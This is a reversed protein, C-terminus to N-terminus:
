PQPSAPANVPHILATNLAQRNAETAALVGALRTREAALSTQDAQLRALDAERATVEQRLRAAQGTLRNQETQALALAALVTERASQEAHRRADLTARELQQREQVAAIEQQQKIRNSAEQRLQAEHARRDSEVQQQVQAAVRAEYQQFLLAFVLLAALPATFYLKKM